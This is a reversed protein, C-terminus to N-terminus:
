CLLRWLRKKAGPMIHAPAKHRDWRAGCARCRFIELNGDARLHVDDRTLNEHPESQIGQGELARCADCLEM